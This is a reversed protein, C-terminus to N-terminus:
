TKRGLARRIVDMGFRKGEAAEIRAALESYTGQVNGDPFLRQLAAKVQDTLTERREVKRLAPVEAVDNTVVPPYTLLQPSASTPQSARPTAEPAPQVDDHTAGEDIVDCDSWTNVTLGVRDIEFVGATDLALRLRSVSYPPVRELLGNNRGEIVYREEKLIKLLVAEIEAEAKAAINGQDERNAPDAEGEDDNLARLRCADRADRWRRMEAPAHLDAFEYLTRRSM